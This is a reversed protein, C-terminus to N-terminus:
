LLSIPFARIGDALTYPQEATCFAILFIRLAM